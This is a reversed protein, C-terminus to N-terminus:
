QPEQSPSLREFVPQYEPPISQRHVAEEDTTEESLSVAELPQQPSASSTRGSPTGVGGGRRSTATPNTDVGLQIPLANGTPRDVRSAEGYLEPDTTTGPPAASLDEQRAALEEQLTQLEGSLEKLLHQIDAKLL